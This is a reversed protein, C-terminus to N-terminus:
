ASGAAYQKNKERCPHSPNVRVGKYTDECRSGGSKCVNKVKNKNVQVHPLYPLCKEYDTCLENKNLHFCCAPHM